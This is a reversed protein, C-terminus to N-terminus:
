GEFVVTTERLCSMRDLSGGVDDDRRNLSIYLPLSRESASKSGEASFNGDGGGRGGTSGLPFPFATSISGAGESTKMLQEMPSIRLGSSSDSSAEM